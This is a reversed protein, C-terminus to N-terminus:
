KSLSKYGGIISYTNTFGNDHFLKVLQLSKDGYECIFYINKELNKNKHIWEITCDNYHNYISDIIYDNEDFEIRCDILIKNDQKMYENYSIEYLSNENNTKKEKLSSCISCNNDKTIDIKIFEDDLGNYCILQNNININVLFKIATIAVLNGILNPIPGFVGLGDCTDTTKKIGPLICELCPSNYIFAMCCDWGIASSFILPLDNYICLKNILCKTSSNDSCDIIIDYEKLISLCNSDFWKNYCIINCDNNISKCHSCLSFVKPIGISSMNHGIQRHLNSLCVIDNDFLGITGIGNSVLHIAVSCGIGGCGIILVKKNLLLLQKDYGFQYLKDHRSYRLM